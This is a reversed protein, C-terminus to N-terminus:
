ISHRRGELINHLARLVDPRRPAGIIRHRVAGESDLLLVTPTRSIGLEGALDLHTAADLEVHVVGPEKGVLEGLLRSTARCPACVESTFQVFTAREGLPRGPRSPVLEGERAPVASAVRGDTARRFLGFGLAFLVTVGVVWVGTM